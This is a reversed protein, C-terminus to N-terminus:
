GGTPQELRSRTHGGRAALKEDVGETLAPPHAPSKIGYLETFHDRSLRSTVEEWAQEFRPLELNARIGQRWARETRRSVRKQKCFRLQENSLDFYRFMANRQEDTLSVSADADYFFADAPLAASITRYERSLDDEFNARTQRRNLALQLAAISVAVLTGASGVTRIAEDVAV